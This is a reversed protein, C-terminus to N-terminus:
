LDFRNDGSYEGTYEEPCVGTLLLQEKIAAIDHQSEDLILWRARDFEALSGPVFPQYAPFPTGPLEDELRECLAVTRDVLDSITKPIGDIQSIFHGITIEDSLQQLMEEPIVKSGYCIGLFSGCTAATCDTDRGCNIAYLVTKMFDGRGWLLAYVAFALNMVCDTFNNHYFKEIIIAKADNQNCGQEYLEFVATLAKAM